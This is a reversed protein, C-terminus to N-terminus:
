GKLWLILLIAFAVILAALSALLIVLSRRNWKLNGASKMGIGAKSLAASLPKYLLMIVSSNLLAKSFNFPAIVFPLLRAVEGRAVELPLGIYVLYWPTVFLNMLLMMATTSIVASYIGVLSARFTRRKSYILSATLSFTASSVFNMLFGYWATTSITLFELAAAIVSIIVASVPGYVFAAITIIADKVDLSLFGQVPPIPSCVLAVIFALASFVSIGVIRQTTSSISRRPKNKVTKM